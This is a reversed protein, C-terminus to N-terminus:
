NINYWINLPINKPSIKGTPDFFIAVLNKKNNNNLIYVLRLQISIPPPNPKGKVNFNVMSTYDIDLKGNVIWKKNSKFPLISFNNDTFIIKKYDGDHIDYFIYNKDNILSVNNSKISSNHNFLNFIVIIILFFIIFNEYKKM